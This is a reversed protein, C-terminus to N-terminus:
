GTTLGTGVGAAGVETEKQAGWPSTLLNLPGLAWSRGKSPNGPLISASSLHSPCRDPFLVVAPLRKLQFSLLDLFIWLFLSTDEEVELGWDGM